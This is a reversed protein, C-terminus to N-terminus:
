AKRFTPLKSKRDRYTRVLYSKVLIDPPLEVDIPGQNIQTKIEDLFAGFEGKELALGAFTQARSVSVGGEPSIVVKPTASLERPKQRLDTGAYNSLRDGLMQGLLKGTESMEQKDLDVAIGKRIREVYEIALRRATRRQINTVEFGFIPLTDTWGRVRVTFAEIDRKVDRLATSM